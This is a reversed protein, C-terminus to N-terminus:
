DERQKYDNECCTRCFTCFSNWDTFDFWWEYDFDNAAKLSVSLESLMKFLPMNKPTAQEPKEFYSYGKQSAYPHLRDRNYFESKGNPSEILTKLAKFVIQREETTLKDFM